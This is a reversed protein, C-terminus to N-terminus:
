YNKPEIRFQGFSHDVEWDKQPQVVFNLGVWQTTTPLAFTTGEHQLLDVLPISVTVWDNETNIIGMYVPDFQCADMVVDNVKLRLVYGGNKDELTGNTGYDYFPSGANTAVEFKLVYDEPHATADFDNWNFGSWDDNWEWSGFSGKLRIFNFGLGQPDDKGAGTTIANKCMGGWNANIDTLVNKTMRYPLVKTHEGDLEKWKFYILSNDPCNEPIAISTYNESCSDCQIEEHYNAETNEIYIKASSEESKDNFGYLDMYDCNLKVKSGQLAFENSLGELKVHPITVPFKYEVSGQDTQYYLIDNQETPIVRPIKIWAEGNKSYVQRVDVAVDNFLIKSANALNEGKLHIMQNLEGSQLPTETDVDHVDYIASIQPAGNNVSENPLKYDVVDSCSALAVVLMASLGINKINFKM